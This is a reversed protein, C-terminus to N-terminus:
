GTLFLAVWGRAQAVFLVLVDCGRPAAPSPAPMLVGRRPPVSTQLSWTHGLRAGATGGGRLIRGPEPGSEGM